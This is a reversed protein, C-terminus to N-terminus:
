YWLCNQGAPLKQQKKKLNCIIASCRRKWLPWFSMKLWRQRGRSCVTVRSRRACSWVYWIGDAARRAAGQALESHCFCCITLWWSGLEQTGAEHATRSREWDTGKLNYVVLLHRNRTREPSGQPTKSDELPRHNFRTAMIEGPFSLM